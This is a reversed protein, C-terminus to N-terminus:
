ATQCFRFKGDELIEAVRLELTLPDLAIFQPLCPTEPINEDIPIFGLDYLVRIALLSQGLYTSAGFIPVSGTKVENIFRNLNYGDMYRPYPQGLREVLMETSPNKILDRLFDQSVKPNGPSFKYLHIGLGVVLTTYVPLGISHAAEILYIQKDIHYVDIENIIVDMGRVFDLANSKQIGETSVQLDLDPAIKKLEEASAIAKKQGVTVSNAIVQRNVNSEEIIDPDTIRLTGAGLRAFIEAINSGMGGLGAIGVKLDRIKKQGEEGGVWYHNRRTRTLYDLCVNM